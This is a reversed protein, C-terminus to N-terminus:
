RFYGGSSGGLRVWFFIGGGPFSLVPKSSPPASSATNADDDSAAKLCRHAAPYRSSTRPATIGRAVSSIPSLFAGVSLLHHIIAVAGLVRMMHTLITQSSLTAQLFYASFGRNTFVCLPM